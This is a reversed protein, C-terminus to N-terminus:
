PTFLRYFRNGFPPSVVLTKTRGDDQITSTVNSWNVSNVSNTNQQLVWGTSPSPWTVIVANGAATISLRPGGPTQVVAITWPSTTVSFSGGSAPVGTGATGVTSNLLYNGGSSPSNVASFSSRQFSYQASAMQAVLVWAVIVVVMIPRYVFCGDEPLLSTKMVSRATEPGHSPVLSVLPAASRGISIYAKM